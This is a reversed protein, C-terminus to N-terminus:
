RVELRAVMDPHVACYYLYDGPLDFTLAKADGKNLIGTDWSGDKAKASHPADDSNAWTVSAGAPVRLNGPRFAFGSIAVREARGGATVAAGSSNTGGGMMRQMHGSGMGWNWGHWSGHWATAVAFTAVCFLAGTLLLAVLALSITRPSAARQM